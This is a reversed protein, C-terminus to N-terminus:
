LFDIMDDDDDNHYQQYQFNDPHHDLRNVIRNM